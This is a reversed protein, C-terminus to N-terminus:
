RPAPRMPPYLGDALIGMSFDFTLSENYTNQRNLLNASSRARVYGKINDLYGIASFLYM